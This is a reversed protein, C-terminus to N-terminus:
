VHASDRELKFLSYLTWTSALGLVLLMWLIVYGLETGELTQLGFGGHFQAYTAQITMRKWLAICMLLAVVAGGAIHRSLINQRRRTTLAAGWLYGGPASIAAAVVCLTELMAPSRESDILYSLSWDPAIAATVGGLPGLVLLGYATVIAFAPSAYFATTGRLLLGQVVRAFALGMLTGCCIVLPVPVGKLSASQRQRAIGFRLAGM